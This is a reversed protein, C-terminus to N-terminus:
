VLPLYIEPDFLHARPACFFGNVRWPVSTIPHGKRGPRSSPELTYTYNNSCTKLPIAADRHVARFDAQRM